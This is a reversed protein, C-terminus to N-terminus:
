INGCVNEFYVVFLEGQFGDRFVLVKAPTSTAVALDVTWSLAAWFPAAECTGLPMAVDAFFVRGHGALVEACDVRLFIRLLGVLLFGRRADEGVRGLLGLFGLAFCAVVFFAGPPFDCTRGLFARLRAAAVLYLPIIPTTVERALHTERFEAPAALDNPLIVISQM